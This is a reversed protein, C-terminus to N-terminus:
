ATLSVIKGGDVRWAPGFGSSGALLGKNDAATALIVAVCGHAGRRRAPGTSSLAAGLAAGAAGRACDRPSRGVEQSTAM